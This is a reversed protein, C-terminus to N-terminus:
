KNAETKKPKASVKSKRRSKKASGVGNEPADMYDDGEESLPVYYCCVLILHM